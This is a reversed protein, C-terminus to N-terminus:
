KEDHKRMIEACQDIVKKPVDVAYPYTALRCDYRMEKRTVETLYIISFSLLMMVAIVVKM